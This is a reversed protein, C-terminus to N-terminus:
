RLRSLSRGQPTSSIAIPQMGTDMMCWDKFDIVADYVLYATPSAGTATGVNAALFFLQAASENNGSSNIGAAVTPDTGWYVPTSVFTNSSVESNAFLCSRWLNGSYNYEVANSVTGWAPVTNSEPLQMITGISAGMAHERIEQGQQSEMLGLSYAGGVGTGVVSCVSVTFHRIVYQCFLQAFATVRGGMLVPHVICVKGAGTRLGLPDGTADVPFPFAAVSFGGSAWFMGNLTAGGPSVSPTLTGLLGRAVVRQGPRGEFTMATANTYGWNQGLVTGVNAPASLARSTM